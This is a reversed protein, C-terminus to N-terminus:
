LTLTELLIPDGDGAATLVVGTGTFCRISFNVSAPLAEKGAGVLALVRYCDACLLVSHQNVHCRLHDLHLNRLIHYM